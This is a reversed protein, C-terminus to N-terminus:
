FSKTSTPLSGNLLPFWHDAAHIQLVQGREVQIEEKRRKAKADPNVGDNLLKKVNFVM